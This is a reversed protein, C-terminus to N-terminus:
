QPLMVQVETVAEAVAAGPLLFLIEFAQLAVAGVVPAVMVVVAGVAEV